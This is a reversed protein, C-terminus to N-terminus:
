FEALSKILDPDDVSPSNVRTSVPYATMEDAPYPACLGLLFEPSADREGLWHAFHEPAIIVPMRDHIPRMLTNAETTVITFTRVWSGTPDKWNEWLGAFAFPAGSKMAIRWPQKPGRDTKKWEYFGDAAVLCRRGKAFATKFAPKIAITEARANILTHGIKPDKAWSPILGWRLLDIQRRGTQPNFRVVPAPQTPALNYRPPFNPLPGHAGFLRGIQEPPLTTSYRGCM